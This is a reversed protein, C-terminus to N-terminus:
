GARGARRFVEDRISWLFGGIGPDSFGARLYRAVLETLAERQEPSLQGVAFGSPDPHHDIYGHMLLDDFLDQSEYISIPVGSAQLLGANAKLFDQWSRAAHAAMKTRRFSM